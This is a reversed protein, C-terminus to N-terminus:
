GPRSWASGGARCGGRGVRCQGARLDALVVAACPRLRFKYVESLRVSVSELLPTVAGGAVNAAVAAVFIVSPADSWALAGYGLLMAGYLLLMAGRRDNRADAVLGSVPAVAVRLLM